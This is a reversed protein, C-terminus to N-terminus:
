AAVLTVRAFRRKGVQIVYEGADLTLGRDEVRQGDIRVGGQEINRNAETGSP